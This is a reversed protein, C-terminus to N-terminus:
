RDLRFGQGRVTVILPKTAGAARLRERVRHVLSDVAQESIGTAEEDPWVAGIITDRSCLDGAREYLLAAVRMDADSPELVGSPHNH